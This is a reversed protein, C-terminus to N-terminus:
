RRRKATKKAQAKRAPAKHPPHKHSAPPKAKGGGKPHSAPKSAPKKKPPPKKKSKSTERKGAPHPNVKNPDEGKAIARQQEARVAPNRSWKVGGEPGAAGAPGAPGPAGGGAAPTEQAGGEENFRISGGSTTEERERKEGPRLPGGPQLVPPAGPTEKAAGGGGEGAGGGGSGVSGLTGEPVGAAPAPETTAGKSKTIIVLLAVVLVAGAIYLWKRNSKKGKGPPQGPESPGAPPKGPGPVAPKTKDAM